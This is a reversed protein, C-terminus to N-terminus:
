PYNYMCAACVTVNIKNQVKKYTHLAVAIDLSGVAIQFALTNVQLFCGKTYACMYYNIRYERDGMERERGEREESQRIDQWM